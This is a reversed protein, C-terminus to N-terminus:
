KIHKTCNFLIEKIQKKSIDFISVGTNEQPIKRKDESDWNRLFRILAKNIANHAVFLITKDPYKKLVKQFFKKAREFLSKKNEVDLPLLDWNVEDFKKNLYSGLEGEKLEDTFILKANPQNKLIIKATEKARIMTSSFIVNIKENRLRKSLAEAQKIGKSTLLDSSDALVKKLNGETEGHRTIILKMIFITKKIKFEKRVRKWFKL